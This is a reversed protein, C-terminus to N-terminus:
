TLVVVWMSWEPLMHEPFDSDTSILEEAGFNRCSQGSSWARVLYWSGQKGSEESGWLDEMQIPVIEKLPLKWCLCLYGSGTPLGPTAALIGTQSKRPSGLM